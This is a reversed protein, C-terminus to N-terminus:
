NLNTIMKSIVYASIENPHYCSIDSTYKSFVPFEDINTYNQTTEFYNDKKDLTIIIKKISKPNNKFTM